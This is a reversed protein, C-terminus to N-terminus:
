DMKKPFIELSTNLMGNVHQANCLSIQINMENKSISTVHSPFQSYSSFIKIFLPATVFFVFIAVFNPKVANLPLNNLRELSM